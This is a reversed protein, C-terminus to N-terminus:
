IHVQNMTFTNKEFISKLDVHTIFNMQIDVKVNPFFHLLFQLGEKQIHNHSADVYLLQINNKQCVDVIKKLGHDNIDNASLLLGVSEGVCNKELCELAENVESGEIGYTRFDVEYREEEIREKITLIVDTKKNIQYRKEIQENCKKVALIM